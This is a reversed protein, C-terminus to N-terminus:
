PLDNEAYYTAFVSCKLWIRDMANMWHLGPLNWLRRELRDVLPYLFFFLRRHFLSTTEAYHIVADDYWDPRLRRRHDLMELLTLIPLLSMTLGYFAITNRRTRCRLLEIFAAWFAAWFIVFPNLFDQLWHSWQLKTLGRKPFM